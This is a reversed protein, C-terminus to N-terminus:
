DGVASIDVMGKIGLRKNEGPKASSRERKRMITMIAPFCFDPTGLNGGPTISASYGFDCFITKQTKQRYPQLFQLSNTQISKSAYLWVAVTETDWYPWHGRSSAGVQRFTVIFVVAKPTCHKEIAGFEDPLRSSWSPWSCARTRRSSSTRRLRPNTKSLSDAPRAFAGCLTAAGCAGGSIERGCPAAEFRGGAPWMAPGGCNGCGEDVTGGTEAGENPYACADDAAGSLDSSLRM